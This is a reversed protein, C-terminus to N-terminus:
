KGLYPNTVPQKRKFDYYQLWLTKRDNPTLDKVKSATIALQQDAWAAAERERQSTLVKGGLYLTAGIALGVGTATAIAGAVPAAVKVASKLAERAEPKKLAEKAEKGLHKATEKGVETAVAVGLVKM